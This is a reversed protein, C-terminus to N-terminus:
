TPPLPIADRWIGGSTRSAPPPTRRTVDLAQAIHLQRPKGDAGARGYDYVRYTVNSNQQIEAVVIGKCIAHLTGAPIFFMDGKHVPVANLVQPLTNNETRAKYEELSIPHRFGYYLYAGSEAEPVYWMETKGYQGEHARAYSGDVDYESVPTVLGAEVLQPGVADSVYFITATNNGKELELLELLDVPDEFQKYVVTVGYKQEFEPWVTDAMWKADAEMFRSYVIIQQGEYPNEAASSGPSQAENAGCAALLTLLLAAVLGLALM